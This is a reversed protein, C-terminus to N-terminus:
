ETKSYESEKVKMDKLAKIVVKGQTGRNAIPLDIAKIIKSKGRKPILEIEGDAEISNFYTVRADNALKILRVGQAPGSLISIQDTPYALIKGETSVIVILDREQIVGLVRDNGKLNCFKRGIRKTPETLLSHEFRFGQGMRTVIISRECFEDGQNGIHDGEDERIDFLSQQNNDSQHETEPKDRQDRRERVPEPAIVGVVFEGDVLSFLNGLHEGFGTSAPVDLGKIVYIKGLNTFLAVTKDTSIRTVGLLEDGERFKLSSIQDIDSKIRRIWGQRSLIITVQEHEVFEEPDYEVASAEDETVIATLRKDGFKKDVDGLDKDVIKWLREESALDKRILDAERKKDALEDILKAMEMAVLRYLKTELIAEIQEDDIEFAERLGDEAHKRSKASRIIKIALDIDQFIKAFGELIHIRKELIELRHRLRLTTKELRFNLFHSIITTLGMREPAGEPTIAIMNIPYNIQLDTNKYIFAMISEPNVKGKIELVIRIDEASEDRVDHIHPLKKDRILNAIKEILRSKNISYPISTIILQIRGRALDEVDYAGRLRIAGHGTSYIERLQSVDNLMEGGTPFDPGKIHKLLDDVTAQPKKIMVRCARIVESMNHPAFSCSMGVAIGSSGNLLLNPAISPLVEPEEGMADYTPRFEIVSQDIERLLLGAFPSLRTETYRMAAPSDGDVSGFNGSGQALPYRLSFDQAMRVLADYAAQDGHPHYKGIVEGVVAASKRMKATAALGMRSMAYLIRRHVPKLGDRVDPLARAVITSLAYALYRKQVEEHVSTEITQEETKTAQM